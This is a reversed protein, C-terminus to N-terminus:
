PKVVKEVAGSLAGLLTFLKLQIDPNTVLKGHTECQYLESAIPLVTEFGNVRLTAAELSSKPVVSDGPTYVVPKLMESTIKTGSSNTFSAADFQTIWRDKKENRRLVMATPTEKCQAGMLYFSVPVKVASKANLAVQFRKARLLAAQFYARSNRQETASFKKEFDKDKWISWDYEEWTNPDYIDLQLPKLDEDYAQLSGDHPLLQFISPITFVDFRTLDQVFPLKIGSGIYSVGNLLAKFSLLSGENPTGVLFIKNLHKAGAWTPRPNGAPIDANGYMAAYRSILGGMSHAVVNFKMNPKGLRRKLTEIRQILLRANEVNDRRWDYSFVFFTDTADAKTATAWKAERYGGTKQLSEILQSYIEIEPLLRAIRVERIIDGAILNDRNRSLNASMPLRIDDDKARGTRFWATQGTVRNILESGTTGPIVIIPDKGTAPAATTQALVSPSFAALCLIILAYPSRINIRM